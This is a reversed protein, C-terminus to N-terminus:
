GLNTGPTSTGASRRDRRKQGRASPLCKDSDLFFLDLHGAFLCSVRDPGAAGGSDVGEEV